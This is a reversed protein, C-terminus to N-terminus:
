ADHHGFDIFAGWDLTDEPSSPTHQSPSTPFTTSQTTTLHSNHEPGGDPHGPSSGLTVAGPSGPNDVVGTFGVTLLEPEINAMSNHNGRQGSSTRPQKSRSVDTAVTDLSHKKSTPPQVPGDGSSSERFTTDFESAPTTPVHHHRKRWETVYPNTLDSHSTRDLPLHLKDLKSMLVHNRTNVAIRLQNHASAIMAILQEEFDKATSDVSPLEPVALPREIASVKLVSRNQKLSRIARDIMNTDNLVKRIIYSFRSKGPSIEASIEREIRTLEDVKFKKWGKPLPKINPIRQYLGLGATVDGDSATTGFFYSGPGSAKSLRSKNEKWYTVYDNPTHPDPINRTHGVHLLRKLDSNRRQVASKLNHHSDTIMQVLRDQYNPGLAPFPPVVIPKVIGTRSQSVQIGESSLVFTTARAITNTDDKITRLVAEYQQSIKRAINELTDIEWGSLEKPPEKLQPLPEPIGLRTTIDVGEVTKGFSYTNSQLALPDAPKNNHPNHPSSRTELPSLVGSLPESGHNPNGRPGLTASNSAGSAISLGNVKDGDSHSQPFSAERPVPFAIVLLICSTILLM